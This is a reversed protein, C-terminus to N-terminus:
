ASSDTTYGLTTSLSFCLGGELSDISITYVIAVAGLVATPGYPRRFSVTCRHQATTPVQTPEKYRGQRTYPVNPEWKGLGRYRIVSVTIKANCVAQLHEPWNTNDAIQLAHEIPRSYPTLEGLNYLTQRSVTHPRAGSSM